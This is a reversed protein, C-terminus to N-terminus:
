QSTKLSLNLKRDYPYCCEFPACSHLSKSLCYTNAFKRIKGKRTEIAFVSDYSECQVTHPRQMDFTTYFYMQVLIGM